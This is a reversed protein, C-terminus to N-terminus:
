MPFPRKRPRRPVEDLILMSTADLLEPDAGCKLAHEYWWPWGMRACIVTWNKRDQLGWRLDLRWWPPRSEALINELAAALADHRDLMFIPPSTM